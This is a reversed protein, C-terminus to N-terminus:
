GARRCALLPPRPPFAHRFVYSAVKSHSWYSDSVHHRLFDTLGRSSSRAIISRIFKTEESHVGFWRALLLAECIACASSHIFTGANMRLTKLPVGECDKAILAQLKRRQSNKLTSWSSFIAQKESFRISRSASLVLRIFQEDQGSFYPRFPKVFSAPYDSALPLPYDSQECPSLHIKVLAKKHHLPISPESGGALIRAHVFDDDWLLHEIELAAHQRDAPHYLRFRSDAREMVRAAANSDLKARTQRFVRLVNEALVRDQHSVKTSYNIKTAYLALVLLHGRIQMVLRDDLDANNLGRVDGPGYDNNESCHGTSIEAHGLLSNNEDVIAFIVRERLLIDCLLTHLCNNTTKSQAILEGITRIPELRHGSPLTADFDIDVIPLLYGANFEAFDDRTQLSRRM